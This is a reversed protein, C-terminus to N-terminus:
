HHHPSIWGPSPYLLAIRPGVWPSQNEALLPANRDGPLKRMCTSAFGQSDTM